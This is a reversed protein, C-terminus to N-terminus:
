PDADAPNPDDPDPQMASQFQERAQQLQNWFLNYILGEVAITASQNNAAQSQQSSVGGVGDVM